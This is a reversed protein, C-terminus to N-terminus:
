NRIFVMLAFVFYYIQYSSVMFREILGMFNSSIFIGSIVVLLLSVCAAVLSFIAFGIWGETLRLRVFMFVMATIQMIGTIVILILHMKGRWTTIEGGADLPFFSAVLLGIFSSAIFLIPGVLSGEGNNIGWHMGAFFALLLISTVIMISQFVWRRYADIAYLSSVDNEIHSYDPVLIGGLIWMITYLIPALMGCIALIHFINM